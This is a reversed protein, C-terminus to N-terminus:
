VGALHIKKELTNLNLSSENGATDTNGLHTVITLLSSNLM